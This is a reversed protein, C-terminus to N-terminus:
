RIGIEVRPSAFEVKGISNALMLSVTFYKAERPIDTLLWSIKHENWTSNGGTWLGEKYIVRKGKETNFSMIALSNGTVGTNRKNYIM